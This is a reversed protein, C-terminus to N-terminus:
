QIIEFEPDEKVIFGHLKTGTLKLQGPLDGLDREVQVAARSGEVKGGLVEAIPAYENAEGYYSNIDLGVLAGLLNDNNLTANGENLQVSADGGHVQDATLSLEPMAPRSASGSVYEIGIDNATLKSSSVTSPSGAEYFLVGAADEEWELSSGAGCVGVIDCEDDSIKVKNINAVAGRSVQIGNQGIAAPGAGTITSSTISASSGSGDITMGNKQYNEITNKTLTAHGVQSGAQSGVQIGVGGQCGNPPFAGAGDVRVSAADLTAGGAVLINYLSDSCTSEPWKAEFTIKDITVTGPTCISVLDQEEEGHAANRELDCTTDSNAPTAPLSVTPNAVGKLTVPKEIQLQEKYAGGCVQITNGSLAADLATQISTYGPNSCSNGPAAIRSGVYLTTAGAAAPACIVMGAGLMGLGAARITRIM